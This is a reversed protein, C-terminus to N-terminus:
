RFIRRLISAMWDFWDPAPPTLSNSVQSEGTRAIEIGFLNKLNDVGPVFNPDIEGLEELFPLYRYYRYCWEVSHLSGTIGEDFAM